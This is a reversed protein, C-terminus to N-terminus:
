ARRAVRPVYCQLGGGTCAAAASADAGSFIAGSSGGGSSGGSSSGSGSGMGSDDGGGADDGSGSLADNKSGCGGALSVLVLMAIASAAICLERARVM